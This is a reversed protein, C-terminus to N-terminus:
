KGTNITSEKQYYTLLIEYVTYPITQTMTYRM